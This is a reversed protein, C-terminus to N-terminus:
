FSAGFSIGGLFGLFIDKGFVDFLPSATIRFYGGGEMLDQERFGALPGLGYLLNGDEFAFTNGVGLEIHSDEDIAILYGSTVPISIREGILFGDDHIYSIGGRLLLKNEFVREYNFSYIGGSGFLEFFVANKAQISNSSDVSDKEFQGYGVQQLFLIFLSILLMKKMM